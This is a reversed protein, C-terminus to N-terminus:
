AIRSNPPAAPRAEGAARVIENATTGCRPALWAAASHVDEFTRSEFGRRTMVFVMTVASRLMAGSFGAAEVVVAVGALRESQKNFMETVRERDENSPPSAGAVVHFLYGVKGGRHEKLFADLSRVMKTIREPSANGRTYTYFVNGFSCQVHSEDQEWIKTTM